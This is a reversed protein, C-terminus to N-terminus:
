RPRGSSVDSRMEAFSPVLVVEDSHPIDAGAKPSGDSAIPGRFFVHVRVRFLQEDFISDVQEGILLPKGM